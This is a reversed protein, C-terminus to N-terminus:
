EVIIVVYWWGTHAVLVSRVSADISLSSLLDELISM